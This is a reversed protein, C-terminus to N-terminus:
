KNRTKSRECTENSTYKWKTEEEDEEEKIKEKTSGSSPQESHECILKTKTKIWNKKNSPM